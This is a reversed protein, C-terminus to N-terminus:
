QGLRRLIRERLARDGQNFAVAPDMAFLAGASRAGEIAVADLMALQESPTLQIMAVRLYKFTRGAKVDNRVKTPKTRRLVVGDEDRALERKVRARRKGKRDTFVQYIKNGEADKSVRTRATRASRAGLSSRGFDIMAGTKGNNRVQIGDVMEGTVIGPKAGAASHFHASSKWTTKEGVGAAQAYATSVYFRRAKKPGATAKTKYPKPPTATRGAWLRLKMHEAAARAFRIPKDIRNLVGQDSRVNKSFKTQIAIM